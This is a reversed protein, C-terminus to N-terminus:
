PLDQWFQNEEGSIRALFWNVANSKWEELMPVVEGENLWGKNGEGWGRSKGLARWFLPDDFVSDISLELVRDSFQLHIHEGAPKWGGEIAQWIADQANNLKM